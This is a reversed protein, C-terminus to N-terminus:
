TTSQPAPFLPSETRNLFIFSSDAFMTQMNCTLCPELSLISLCLWDVDWRTPWRWRRIGWRSCLIQVPSTVVRLVQPGGTRWRTNTCQAVSYLKPRWEVPVYYYVVSIKGSPLPTHSNKPPGVFFFLLKRRSDSFLGKRGSPLHQITISTYYMGYEKTVVRRPIMNGEEAWMIITNISQCFHYEIIGLSHSHTAPSLPFIWTFIICEM